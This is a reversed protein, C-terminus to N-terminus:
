EGRWLAAIERRGEVGVGNRVLVAWVKGFSGGHSVLELLRQRVSQWPENCRGQGRDEGSLVRQVAALTSACGYEYAAFEPRTMGELCVWSARESRTLAEMLMDVQVDDLAELYGQGRAGQIAATISGITTRVPTDM